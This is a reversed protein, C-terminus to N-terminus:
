YSAVETWEVSVIVQFTGASPGALPAQIALGENQALVIPHGDVNDDWLNAPNPGFFMTGVPASAIAGGQITAMADTDNGLTQGTLGAAATGLIWIGGMLTTGMSTRLKANGGTLTATTGISTTPSVTFGRAFFLQLNYPLATNAGSAGFVANVRIRQILALKGTSDSWRLAWIVANASGTAVIQGSSLSKAYSGLTGMAPTRPSVRLNGDLDVKAQVGTVDFVGVRAAKSVSDVTMLDVSAGSQIQAM